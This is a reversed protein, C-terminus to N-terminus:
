KLPAPMCMVEVMKSHLHVCIAEAAPTSFNYENILKDRHAAIAAALDALHEGFNMLAVAFNLDTM